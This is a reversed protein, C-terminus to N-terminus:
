RHIRCDEGRTEAMRLTCARRQASSELPQGADRRATVISFTRAAPSLSVSVSSSDLCVPSICQSLYTKGDLVGQLLPSWEPLAYAPVGKCPSVYTCTAVPSRRQRAVGKTRPEPALSSSSPASLAHKWWPKNKVLVFLAADRFPSRLQALRRSHQRPLYGRRFVKRKEKGQKERTRERRQTVDM